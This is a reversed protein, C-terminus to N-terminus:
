YNIIGIGTDTFTGTEQSNFRELRHITIEGIANEFIGTGGEIVLLNWKGLEDTGSDVSRIWFEDGYDNTYSGNYFENDESDTCISFEAKLSGLAGSNSQGRNLFVGIADDCTKTDSKEFVGTSEIKFDTVGENITPQFDESNIDNDLTESSNPSCGTLTLACIALM